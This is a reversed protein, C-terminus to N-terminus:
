FFRVMFWFFHWIEVVGGLITYGRSYLEGDKMTKDRQQELEKVKDQLYKIEKQRLFIVYISFANHSDKLTKFGPPM